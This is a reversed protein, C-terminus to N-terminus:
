SERDDRQRRGRAVPVNIRYRLGIIRMLLCLSTGFLAYFGSDIGAHHAITVVGAGALAPVAYLEARLVIPVERLLVVRLIGGGIGTM